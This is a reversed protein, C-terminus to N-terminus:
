RIGKPGQHEQNNQQKSSNRSVPTSLSIDNDTTIKITSQLATKNEDM